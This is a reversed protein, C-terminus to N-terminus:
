LGLVGAITKEALVVAGWLALATFPDYYLIGSCLLTLNATRM